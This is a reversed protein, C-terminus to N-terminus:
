IVIMGAWSAGHPYGSANEGHNQQAARYSRRVRLFGLGLFGLGLFILCLLVFVTGFKPEGDVHAVQQVKAAFGQILQISMWGLNGGYVGHFKGPAQAPNLRELFADGFDM